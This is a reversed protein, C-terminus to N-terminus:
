FDEKFKPDFNLTYDIRGEKYNLWRMYIEDLNEMDRYFMEVGPRVLRDDHYHGFLWADWSITNKFDEMWLEMSCDVTSPDIMNLFLDTPQWSYPCTHTLVFNFHQGGWAEGITNMEEPTLQEDPFWGCWGDKHKQSLRYHKDVSYAGGIVLVSYGNINYVHGDMLYRIYTHNPEMWVDGMVNSDFITTMTPINEPREEHNGRVCYIYRKYLNARRKLNRDSNNLYYNFGVDGLIILAADDIKALQELHSLVRNGHTDSTVFYHKIM